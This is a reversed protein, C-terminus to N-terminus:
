RRRPSTRTSRASRASTVTPTSSREEEEEDVSAFVRGQKGMGIVVGSGAVAEQWRVAARGRIGLLKALSRRSEMACGEPGLLWVPSEVAVGSLAGAAQAVAPIAAFYFLPRWWGPEPRVVESSATPTAPTPQNKVPASGSVSKGSVDSAATATKAKDKSSKGDSGQSPSSTMAPAKVKDADGNRKSSKEEIRAAAKEELDVKEKKPAAETPAWDRLVEKPSDKPSDKSVPVANSAVDKDVKTPNPNASAASEKEAPTGPRGESKVAAAEGAGEGQGERRRRRQRRRRRSRTKRM